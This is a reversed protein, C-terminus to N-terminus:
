RLQAYRRPSRRVSQTSRGVCTSPYRPTGARGPIGPPEQAALAELPHVTAAVDAQDSALLAAGPILTIHTGEPRPTRDPRPMMTGANDWATPSVSPHRRASELSGDLAGIRGVLPHHSWGPSPLRQQGDNQDREEGVATSRVSADESPLDSEDAPGVSTGTTVFGPRREALRYEQLGVAM